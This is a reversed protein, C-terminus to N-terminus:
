RSFHSRSWSPLCSPSYEYGKFERYNSGKTTVPWLCIMLIGYNAFPIAPVYLCLLRVWLWQDADMEPFFRDTFLPVFHVISSYLCNAHSLTIQYFCNPFCCAKGCCLINEADRLSPSILHSRSQEYHPWGRSLVKIRQCPSSGFSSCKRGLCYFLYRQGWHHIQPVLSITLVVTIDVKFTNRCFSHVNQTDDGSHSLRKIILGANTFTWKSLPLIYILIETSLSPIHHKSIPIFHKGCFM